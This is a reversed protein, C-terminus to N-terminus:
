LNMLMKSEAKHETIHTDFSIWVSLFFICCLTVKYGRGTRLTIKHDIYDITEHQQNPPFKKLTKIVLM